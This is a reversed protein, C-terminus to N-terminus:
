ERALLADFGPMMGPNGDADGGRAIREYIGARMADGGFLFGMTPGMGDWRRPAPETAPVGEVRGRAGHCSACLERWLAKAEGRTGDDWVDHPPEQTSLTADRARTEEVSLWLAAGRRVFWDDGLSADDLVAESPPPTGACAALLLASALSASRLSARPRSHRSGIRDVMCANDCLRPHLKPGVWRGIYQQSPPASM